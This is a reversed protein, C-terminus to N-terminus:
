SDDPGGASTTSEDAPPERHISSSRQASLRRALLDVGALVASAAVAGVTRQLLSPEDAPARPPETPAPAPSPSPEPLGMARAWAEARRREAAARRARVARRWSRYWLLLVTLGAIAGVVPVLAPNAALQRPVELTRQTQRDLADLLRESEARLAALERATDAATEGV